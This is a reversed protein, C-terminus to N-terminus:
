LLNILKRRDHCLLFKLLALSYSRKVVEIELREIKKKEAIDNAQSKQISVFSVDNASVACVVFKDLIDFEPFQMMRRELFQLFM